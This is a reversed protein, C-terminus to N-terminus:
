QGYRKLWERELPEVWSGHPESLAPASRAVQGPLPQAAFRARDAPSLRELALVTPDGWVAIDAKHAQAEPSLLFNAVVQAADSASANVPIAVFHTNGITGSEFQYSVVSAPLRKAAIENAADNPNFTLALLLEGDALMQRMAEANLPFQRGARWLQPHLADLTRWLPATAQAFAAPTVPRYLASRETNLDLLLQKLFTTGHFNPPRPYTVRGPNAKAFALLADLSRPPEPTRRSDAMFTLQAMGWPAELGDVPESFDLRTTPKGQVDVLGYGPLSEAFPGFLLGERKMTLFNEGNIWVLDVSGRTKGAAKEARVRKVMDAADSIKVHELRVGHRQQVQAGVWQIYRNIAESGGWANFYVTQGRARAEIASWAAGTQAWAPAALGAAMAALLALAGRRTPLCPDGSERFDLSIQTQGFHPIKM